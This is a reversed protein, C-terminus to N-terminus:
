HIPVIANKTFCKYEDDDDDITLATAYLLSPTVSEHCHNSIDFWLGKLFGPHRITASEWQRSGIAV